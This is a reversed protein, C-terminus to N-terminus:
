RSSAVRIFATTTAEAIYCDREMHQLARQVKNQNVADAQKGALAVIAGSPKDDAADIAVAGSIADVAIVDDVDSGASEEDNSIEENDAAVAVDDEDDESDTLDLIADYSVDDGFMDLVQEVKPRKPYANILKRVHHKSWVTEKDEFHEAVIAIEDNVKERVNKYGDSTQENWYIAAQHVLM